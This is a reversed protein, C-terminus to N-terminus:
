AGRLQAEARHRRQIFLAEQRAQEDVISNFPDDAHGKVWDWRVNHFQNLADLRQWLDRNKVPQGAGTRWRGTGGRRKWHPVWETIGKRLYQSDTVVQVRSPKELEELGMIAAMMEAQNNTASELGGSVLSDDELEGEKVTLLLAAWGAAGPNELCSGDTYIVVGTMIHEVLARM